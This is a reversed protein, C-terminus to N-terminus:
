CHGVSLGAAVGTLSRNCFWSSSRVIDVYWQLSSGAIEISAAGRALLVKPACGTTGSPLRDSNMPDDWPRHSAHHIENM